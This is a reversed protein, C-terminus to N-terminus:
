RRATKGEDGRHVADGGRRHGRKERDRRREQGKKEKTGRRALRVGVGGGGRWGWGGRAGIGGEEEHTVTNHWAQTTGPM